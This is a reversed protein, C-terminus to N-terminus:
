RERDATGPDARARRRLARSRRPPHELARSMSPALNSATARRRPTERSRPRRRPTHHHARPRHAATSPRHRRRRRRPQPTFTTVRLRELTPARTPPMAKAAAVRMSALADVDDADDRTADDNRSPARRRIICRHANVATFARSPSSSKADTSRHPTRATRRASKSPTSLVHAFLPTSQDGAAINSSQSFATLEGADDSVFTKTATGAGPSACSDLGRAMPATPNQTTTAPSVCTVCIAVNGLMRRRPSPCRMSRASIPISGRDTATSSTFDVLSAANPM